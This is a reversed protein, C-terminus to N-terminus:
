LLREKPVQGHEEVMEVTGGLSEVTKTLAGLLFPPLEHELMGWSMTVGGGQGRVLVVLELDDPGEKQLADVEKRLREVFAALGPQPTGYRNPTSM